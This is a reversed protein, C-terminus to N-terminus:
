TGVNLYYVIYIWAEGTQHGQNLQQVIGLYYMGLYTM